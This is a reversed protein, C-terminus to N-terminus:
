AVRRQQYQEIASKSEERHNELTRIFTQEDITLFAAALEPDFQGGACKRIEALAVELPLAKRYTRSSTMADFCDALCIMRGMVPIEEGALGHPYGRGDYREHHYLVGPLVDKIQKIDALIKAGIEPHKKIQEFEEPDLRGAKSLVAEPVGIKGVDHLLGAMYVRDAFAQDYGARLALERSLLAVRESHGCTYADKADVASTLSHLLGMMLGRVDEFLFSNELYIASENAISNVLKSDVSDFVGAKDLAFMVGLLQDQRMLPAVLLNPSSAALWALNADAALDNVLMPETRSKMTELLQEALRSLDPPALTIEGHLMAQPPEGDKGRLIAGMGRVGIVEMVDLCAQAFFEEAGRNIKMGGSIQYILSLEEYLNTLQGSLSDREQEMEALRLQDRLADALMNAQRLMAERGWGPLLDAQQKLWLSDVQLQSCARLVEEDLTFSSSRAAIVLVGACVRREVVPIVALCVGPLTDIVSVAADAQARMARGSLRPTVFKTFFAGAANDSFAIRGAVDFMALMQGGGRVRDALNSLVAKPLPTADSSNNTSLLM